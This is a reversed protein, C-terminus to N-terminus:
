VGFGYGSEHTADAEDTTARSLTACDEGATAPDPPPDQPMTAVTDTTPPHEQDSADM